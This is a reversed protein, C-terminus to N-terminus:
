IDHSWSRRLRRDYGFALEVKSYIAIPLRMQVLDCIVYVKWLNKFNSVCYQDRGREGVGSSTWGVVIRESMTPITHFALIIAGVLENYFPPVRELKHVWRCWERLSVHERGPWFGPEKDWLLKWMRDDRQVADYWVERTMNDRLQPVALWLERMTRKNVSETFRREECSQARPMLALLSDTVNDSKLADRIGVPVLNFKALRMYVVGDHIEAEAKHKVWNDTRMFLLLNANVRDRQEDAVGLLKVLSPMHRHVEQRKWNLPVPATAPPWTTSGPNAEAHHLLDVLVQLSLPDSCMLRSAGEVCTFRRGKAQFACRKGDPSDRLRAALENVEFLLAASLDTRSIWLKAMVQAAIAEQDAKPTYKSLVGIFDLKDMAKARKANPAYGESGRKRHGDELGNAAAAVPPQPPTSVPPRPTVGGINEDPTCVPAALIPAKCLQFMKFIGRLEKPPDVGVKAGKAAAPPWPIEVTSMRPLFGAFSLDTFLGIQFVVVHVDPRFTWFDEHSM